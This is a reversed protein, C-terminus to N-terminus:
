RGSATRTSEQNASSRTRVPDRRWLAGIVPGWAGIGTGIFIPGTAIISFRGREVEYETRRDRFKPDKNRMKLPPDLPPM